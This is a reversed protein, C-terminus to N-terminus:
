AMAFAGTESDNWRGILQETGDADLPESLLFGQAYECGLSQLTELQASNDLGEAIVHLGLSHALAIVARVIANSGENRHMSAIFSRDIKLTDGPFHHLFTLSSYGTGFDDIQARVGLRGLENLATRMRDPEYMVTSETIELRLAGALLRNSELAAVVDTILNAEGFQRGSVNVSVTVDDDVLGRERWDVLNACAENLVLRGLAGILGTDEAIPIFEDPKVQPGSEPWRALAELGSLRGTGLDIIPQYFVRLRHNEIARRLETELHLESVVDTHMHENFVATRGAGERKAHYMAIDANRLVDAARSERDSVAIGISAAVFLERDDVEFPESLGIQIRAAVEAAERESGIAALLITFEDGGLRAVTDGPRVISSLRRALAVLLRDGVAHNFGDNV